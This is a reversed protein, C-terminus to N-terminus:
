PQSRRGGIVALAVGLSGLLLTVTTPSRRGLYESVAGVSLTAFVIAIGLHVTWPEVRGAQTSRGRLPKVVIGALAVLSCIGCIVAVFMLTDGSIPVGAGALPSACFRRM